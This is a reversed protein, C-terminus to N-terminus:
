YSAIMGLSYLHLFQLTYMTLLLLDLGAFIMFLCHDVVTVNVNM